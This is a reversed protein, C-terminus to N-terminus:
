IPFLAVTLTMMALHLAVCCLVVYCLVVCCLVALNFCIGSKKQDEVLSVLPYVHLKAATKQLADYQNPPIKADWTKSYM